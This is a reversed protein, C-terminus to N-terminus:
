GGPKKAMPDAGPTEILVLERPAGVPAALAGPGTDFVITTVVLERSMGFSVKTVTVRVPKFIPDTGTVVPFKATWVDASVEGDSAVPKPTAIGAMLRLEDFLLADTTTMVTEM